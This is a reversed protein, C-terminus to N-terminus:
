LADLLSLKRAQRSKNPTRPLAFSCVANRVEPQGDWETFAQLISSKVFAIASTNSMSSLDATGQYKLGNTLSVKGM